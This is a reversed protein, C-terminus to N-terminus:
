LAPADNKEAQGGIQSLNITNWCQQIARYGPNPSISIRSFLAPNIRRSSARSNLSFSQVIDHVQIDLAYEEHSLCRRFVKDRM